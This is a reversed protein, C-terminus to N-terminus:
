HLIFIFCTSVTSLELEARSKLHLEQLDSASEIVFRLEDETAELDVFETESGDSADKLHKKLRASALRLMLSAVDSPQADEAGQGIADLAQQYYQVCLHFQDASDEYLQALLILTDSEFKGEGASPFISFLCDCYLFACTITHELSFSQYVKSVLRCKKQFTRGCTRAATAYSFHSGM